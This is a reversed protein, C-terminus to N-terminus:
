GKGFEETPIVKADRFLDRSLPVIENKFTDEAFNASKLLQPAMEHGLIGFAEYFIRDAVPAAVNAVFGGSTKAGAMFGDYIGAEEAGYRSRIQGRIKKNVEQNKAMDYAGEMFAKYPEVGFARLILYSTKGGFEGMKQTALYIEADTSDDGISCSDIVLLNWEEVIRNYYSEAIRLRYVASYKGGYNSVFRNPLALSKIIVSGTYFAKSPADMFELSESTKGTGVECVHSSLLLARERFKEDVHVTAADPSSGAAMFFATPTTMLTFLMLLALVRIM